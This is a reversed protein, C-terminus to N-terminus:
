ALQPSGEADSHTATARIQGIISLVGNAEALIPNTGFAVVTDNNVVETSKSIVVTSDASQPQSVKASVPRGGPTPKIITQEM